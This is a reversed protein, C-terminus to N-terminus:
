VECFTGNVGREKPTLAFEWGRQACREKCWACLLLTVKFIWSWALIVTAAIALKLSSGIEFDAVDMAYLWVLTPFMHLLVPIASLLSSLFIGCAPEDPDDGVLLLMEYALWFAGFWAFVQTLVNAWQFGACQKDWIAIVNVREPIGLKLAVWDREASCVPSLILQQGTELDRTTTPHQDEGLFTNYCTERTKWKRTENAYLRLTVCTKSEGIRLHEFFVNPAVQENPLGDITRWNTKSLAAISLGIAVLVAVCNILAVIRTTLGLCDRLM